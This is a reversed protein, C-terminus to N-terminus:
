DEQEEDQEEEEIYGDEQYDDRTERNRQCFLKSYPDCTYRRCDVREHYPEDPFARRAAMNASQRTPYLTGEIGDVWWLEVSFDDEPIEIERLLFQTKSKATV